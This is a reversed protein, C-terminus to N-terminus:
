ADQQEASGADLAPAAPEGISIVRPEPKATPQVTVTLRGDAYTAAVTDADLSNALQITRSWRFKREGEAAVVGITLARDAVEVSVQDRPVGPLDVNLQLAGEAWRGTVEPSTQEWPQNFGAVLQRFLRDVNDVTRFAPQRVILM